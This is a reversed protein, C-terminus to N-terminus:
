AIIMALGAEFSVSGCLGHPLTYDKLMPNTLTLQVFRLAEEAFLAFESESPQPGYKSFGEIRESVAQIIKSGAKM